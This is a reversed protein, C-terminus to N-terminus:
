FGHVDRIKFKETTEDTILSKFKWSGNPELNDTKALVTGLLTGFQDYLDIEVQVFKFKLGTNNKVTGVVYRKNQDAEIKDDLIELDPKAEPKKVTENTTPTTNQSPPVNGSSEPKSPEGCGIMMLIIVIGGIWILAKKM